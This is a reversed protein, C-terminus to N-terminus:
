LWRNADWGLADREGLNVEPVVVVVKEVGKMKPLYQIYPMQHPSIINQFFLLNM